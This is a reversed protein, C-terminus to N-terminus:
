GMYTNLETVERPDVGPRVVRLHRGIRREGRYPKIGLLQRAHVRKEFELLEKRGPVMDRLRSLNALLNLVLFDALILDKAHIDSSNGTHVLGHRLRCLRSLDRETFLPIGEPSRTWGLLVNLREFLTPDSPDKSELLLSDLAIFDLLFALGKDLTQLSRGILTSARHVTLRWESSVKSRDSLLAMLDFFFEQHDKWDSDIRFPLIGMKWEFTQSCEVSAAGMAKHRCVFLSEKRVRSFSEPPGFASLYLSPSRVKHPWSGAVLLLCAQEVSRRLQPELRNPTGAPPNLFALSEAKDLRDQTSAPLASIRVPLALRRRIRRAKRPSVFLVDHVLLEEGISKDLVLNHIPCIFVWPRKTFRLTAM